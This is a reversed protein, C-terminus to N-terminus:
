VKSWGTLVLKTEISEVWKGNEKKKKPVEKFQCDKLFDDKEFHNLIYLKTDTVNCKISENTNIDILIPQPKNKNNYIKLSKVFYIDGCEEHKFYSGTHKEELQLQQLLNISENEYTQYYEKFYGDLNINMYQAPTERGIYKKLTNFDIALFPIDQKKLTRNYINDFKFSTILKLNEYINLLTQNGGFDSFYNLQILVELQNSRLTTNTLMDIILEYFRSLREKEPLTKVTKYKEQKALEYLEDAVAVNLGKISGVGKYISYDENDVSYEGKSKGFKPNNMVITNNYHPLDKATYSTGDKSLVTLIEAKRIRVKEDNLYDINLTAALTDGKIIDDINKASNLYGVIFEAPFYTRLMAGIFGQMSYGTAHNYGFQYSASDQIVQLFEKAEKEAVERPKDSKACYGDLIQPMAADLRDKQKRM